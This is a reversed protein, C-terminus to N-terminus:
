RALREQCGNILGNLVRDLGNALLTTEYVM